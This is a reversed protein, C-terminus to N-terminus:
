NAKREDQSMYCLSSHYNVCRKGGTFWLGESRIAGETHHREQHNIKEHHHRVLLRAIQSQGPILIPTRACVPLDCMNIRGGARLLGDDLYPSLALITSDRPLPRGAHLANIEKQYFKQQVEKIILM